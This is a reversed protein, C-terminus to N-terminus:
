QKITIKRQEGELIEFNIWITNSPLLDTIKEAWEIVVINDNKGWIDTLGLNKVEEDINEELRYLDVHFFNDYSRMLIFTPSIMRNKIGLGRALGQVFTTKGAGLDGVLAITEGGKLSASFKQGLSQTEQASQTITEM